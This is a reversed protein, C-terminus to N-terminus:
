QLSKSFQQVFDALLEPLMIKITRKADNLETEYDTFTYPVCTLVAPHAPSILTESSQFEKFEGVINDDLKWYYVSDLASGYKAALYNEFTAQDLPWEQYLNHIENFILIVWYLSASGYQKKAISQATEGDRITYEFFLGTFPKLETIFRSRETINKVVFTQGKFEFTTNPLYSFYSM